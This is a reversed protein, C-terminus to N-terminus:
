SYPVHSRALDLHTGLDLLAEVLAENGPLANGNGDWLGRRALERRLDEMSRVAEDLHGVIGGLALTRSRAKREAPTMARDGIPKRGAM